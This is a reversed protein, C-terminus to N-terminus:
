QEMLKKLSRWSRIGEISSPFDTSAINEKVIEFLISWHRSIDRIVNFVSLNPDYIHLPESKAGNIELLKFEGRKLHDLSESKVDLRCFNMGKVRNFFRNISDILQPDIESNLSEFKAGRSYNGIHDVIIEEGEPIVEDLRKELKKLAWKKKLFPNNLRAILERLTSKDDGKVLPLHKEVLSTIGSSGSEQFRFFMISYERAHPLFMQVIIEQDGMIDLALTLEEPTDIRRVQHGKYGINPKLILPLTFEQLITETLRTPNCGAPVLRTQPLYKEPILQYIDSKRDDLM